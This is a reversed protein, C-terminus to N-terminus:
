RWIFNTFHAILHCTILDDRLAGAANPMPFANVEPLEMFSEGIQGDVVFM